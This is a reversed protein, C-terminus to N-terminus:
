GVVLGVWACDGSIVVGFGGLVGESGWLVTNYWGWLDFM